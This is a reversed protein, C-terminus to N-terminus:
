SLPAIVTSCNRSMFARGYRAPDGTRPRNSPHFSTTQSDPQAAVPEEIRRIHKLDGSPNEDTDRFDSVVAAEVEIDTASVASREELHDRIIPIELRKGIIQDDAVPVVMGGHIQRSRIWKSIRKRENELSSNGSNRSFSSSSACLFHTNSEPSCHGTARYVTPPLNTQGESTTMESYRTTPFL